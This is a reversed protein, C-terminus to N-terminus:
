TLFRTPLSSTATLVPRLGTPVYDREAVDREARSRLGGCGVMVM